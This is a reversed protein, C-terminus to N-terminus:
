KPVVLCTLIDGDGTQMMFGDRDDCSNAFAVATKVSPPSPPDAFIIGIFLMLSVVLIVALTKGGVQIDGIRFGKSRDKEGSKDGGGKDEGGKDKKWRSSQLGQGWRKFDSSWAERDKETLMGRTLWNGIEKSRKDGIEM